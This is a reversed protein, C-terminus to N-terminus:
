PCAGLRRAQCVHADRCYRPARWAWLTRDGFQLHGLQVLSDVLEANVHGPVGSQQDVAVGLHGWVMRSYVAAGINALCIEAGKRVGDLSPGRFDHAVNETLAHQPQWCFWPQIPM